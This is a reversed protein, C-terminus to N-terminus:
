KDSLKDAILPYLKETVFELDEQFDVEAVPHNTGNLSKVEIGDAIIENIADMLYTNLRNQKLFQETKDFFVRSGEKSYKIMYCFEGDAEDLPIDKGMIAVKDNDIKLKSDEEFYKEKKHYPIVIRSKDKRVLTLLDPDYFVDGTLFIFETDYM